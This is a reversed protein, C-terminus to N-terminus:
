EVKGQCKIHGIGNKNMVFLSDTTVGYGIVSCTWGTEKVNEAPPLSILDDPRFQCTLNYVGGNTGVNLSQDYTIAYVGAVRIFCEFDKTLGAAADAANDGPDAAVPVATLAALGLAVSLSLGIIKRM